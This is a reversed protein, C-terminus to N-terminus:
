IKIVRSFIDNVIEQVVQKLKDEEENSFKQLVYQEGPIERNQGRNEVGVRIRWFDKPLAKEISLVGKHLRPGKGKQIKYEGLDIDLDDHIVWLDSPEIKYQSLLRVVAKGSENMYTLPKALIFEPTKIIEAKFKEKKVWDNDEIKESLSDIVVFGVNHRTSKYKEEPNGLGVILKM